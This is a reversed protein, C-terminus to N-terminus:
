TYIEYFFSGAGHEKLKKLASHKFIELSKKFLSM